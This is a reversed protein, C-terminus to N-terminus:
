FYNIVSPNVNQYILKQLSLQHSVKYFHKQKEFDNYIANKSKRKRFVGDVRGDHAVSAFM